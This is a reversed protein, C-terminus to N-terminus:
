VIEIIRDFRFTREGDRLYCFARLYKVSNEEIIGLPLIKRKTIEKKMESNKNSVYIITLKERREIAKLIKGYIERNFYIKNGIQKIDFIIIKQVFDIDYEDEINECFSKFVEFAIRADDEARHEAIRKINFNKSLNDLSNSRFNFFKKAILLTDIIRIEPFPFNSREFEKKLFQIDFNANHCLIIEDKMFNYIEGVIDKFKPSDKVDESKIGSISYFEGTEPNILQVFKKEIQFNKFKLLAIEIIRDKEPNLGTTETDLAVIEPIKIKM